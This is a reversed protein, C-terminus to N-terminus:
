LSKVFNVTKDDWDGEGIFKQVVKGTRDIIYTEPVKFTGYSTSIDGEPDRATEFAIKNMTLFRRYANENTDISIGLVVVGSDAVRKQFENLPQAEEVCPACWSAWFHLVLVKGGFNTATIKRGQDTTVSFDPAIDGAKVVRENLSGAIIVILAALLGGILIKIALDIKSKTM